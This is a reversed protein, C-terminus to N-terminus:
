LNIFIPVVKAYIRQDITELEKFEKMNKTKDFYKYYKAKQMTGAMYKSLAYVFANVNEKFKINKRSVRKEESMNILEVHHKIKIESIAKNYCLM